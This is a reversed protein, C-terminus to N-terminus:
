AAAPGSVFAKIAGTTDTLAGGVRWLARFTILDTNFAFDDSREWRMGGAFRVFYRSFDGFLITQKGEEPDPMASDLYVPRGLLTGAAGTGRPVEFDLLPRENDDKIKRVEALMASSMIWAARDARAYPSAVSHMMDILDDFSPTAAEGTKGATVSALLGKPEGTGSGNIFHESFANSLSEAAQRALFDLLDFSADTALEHTIQTIFGYKYAPLPVVSLSPDSSPITGGEAVIQASSFATSAPVSMSEGTETAIVTAGAALVANAETLHQVVREYFSSPVLGGGSSTALSRAELGPSFGSRLGAMPVEVPERSQRRIRDRFEDALQQDAATSKGVRDAAIPRARLEEVKAVIAQNASRTAEMDEIQQAIEAIQDIYSRYSLEEAATLGRREAVARDLLAKVQEYLAAQAAKLNDIWSNSM